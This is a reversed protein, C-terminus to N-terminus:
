NNSRSLEVWKTLDLVYMLTITDDSSMIFDAACNINGTGDQITVTVGAGGGHVIVVIQGDTGGSLTTTVTALSPELRIFSKGSVSITAEDTSVTEPQIVLGETTTVDNVTLNTGVGLTTGITASTGVGLTTATTASSGVALTTTTALTSFTQSTGGLAITGSADPLYITRNAVPSIATLSTKFLDVSSLFLIKGNVAEAEGLVLVETETTDAVTLNTGVGLTTTTTLTSFTQATNAIAFTGALDPLVFTRTASLTPAGITAYYNNTANRWQVTGTFGSATGVGLGVAANLYGDTQLNSASSRYLKTDTGWILGDAETTGADFRVQGTLTINGSTRSRVYGRTALTDQQSAGSTDVLVHNGTPMFYLDGLSSANFGVSFDPLTFRGDKSSFKLNGTFTKTNAISQASSTQVIVAKTASNLNAWTISSSLHAGSSNHGVVYWGYLTKTSDRGIHIQNDISEWQNNLATAGPNAGAAWKYFRYYTTSDSPATQGFAIGALLLIFLIKKM